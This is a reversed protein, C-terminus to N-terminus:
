AFGVFFLFFVYNDVVHMANRIVLYTKSRVSQIHRRDFYLYRLPGHVSVGAFCRRYPLVFTVVNLIHFGRSARHLIFHMGMHSASTLRVSRGDVFGHRPRVSAYWHWAYDFEM